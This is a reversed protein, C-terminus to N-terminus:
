SVPEAGETLHAKPKRLRAVLGPTCLLLIALASIGIGARFLPPTFSCHVTTSGSVTASLLGARSSVPIPKGDASCSWGDIAPTALVFEGSVPQTFTATVKEAQIVLDSPRAIKETGRLYESIDACGVFLNQDLTRDATMHLTFSQTAETAQGIEGLLGNSSATVGNAQEIQYGTPAESIREYRHVGAFVTTGPQCSTSFLYTEGKRLQTEEALTAANKVSVPEFHYLNPANSLSSRSEYEEPMSGGTSTFQDPYVRAMPLTPLGDESAVSLVGKLISDEPLWSFRAGNSTVMGLAGVSDAYQSTVATSYYDTGPYIYRASLNDTAHFDTFDDHIWGLRHTPWEDATLRESLEIRQAEVNTNIIEFRPILEKDVLTGTWVYEFSVAVLLLATTARGILLATKRIPYWRTVLIVALLACLLFVYAAMTTRGATPFGVLNWRKLLLLAIAPGLLVVIIVQGWNPGDLQKGKGFRNNGTKSEWALTATVVVWATIVFVWRYPTGHPTQFLNWVIQAKMNTLSLLLVASTILWVIKFRWTLDRTFFFAAFLALAVFGTYLPPEYTITTTFPLTRIGAVSKGFIILREVSEYGVGQFLANVTPLLIPATIAVGLVGVAVFRAVNKLGQKFGDLGLALTISFLGAVISAMFAVYYNAWWVLAVAGGALIWRPRPKRMELAAFFLLPLGYSVDLWQPIFQGLEFVWSSCAYGVSIILPLVGSFDPRLYHILLRMFGAALAVKLLISILFAALIQHRPVLLLVLPTIPGGLYTAYDPITSVGLGLNWSFTLGSLGSGQLIQDRFRSYFPLYQAGFDHVRGSYTGFPYVGVKLRVALHVLVAGLASALFLSVKHARPNTKGRM